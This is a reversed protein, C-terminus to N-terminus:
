HLSAGRVKTPTGLARATSILSFAEHSVLTTSKPAVSGTGKGGQGDRRGCQKMAWQVHWTWAYMVEM